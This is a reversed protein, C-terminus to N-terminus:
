RVAVARKQIEGPHCASNLKVRIKVARKHARILAEIMGPDSLAVMNIRISKAAAGIV